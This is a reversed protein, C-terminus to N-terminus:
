DTESDNQKEESSVFKILEFVAMSVGLVLGLGTFLIVTGFRQDVFYGIFAPIVMM